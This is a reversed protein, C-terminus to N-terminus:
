EDTYTNVQRVGTLIEVNRAADYNNIIVFMWGCNSPVVDANTQYLLKKGLRKKYSWRINQQYQRLVTFAEDPPAQNNQMFAEGGPKIRWSKEIYFGVDNVDFIPKYCCVNTRNAAVNFYATLNAIFDVQNAGIQGKCPRCLHLWAEDMADNFTPQYADTPPNGYQLSITFIMKMYTLSIKNGLRQNNQTGQPLNFLPSIMNYALNPTNTIPPLANVAPSIIYKHEADNKIVAKVKKAFKSKGFRKKNYTRYKFTKKYFRNFRKKFKKYRYAM